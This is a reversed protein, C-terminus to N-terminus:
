KEAYNAGIYNPAVTMAQMHNFAGYQNKDGYTGNRFIDLVKYVTDPIVQGKIYKKGNLTDINYVRQTFTNYESIKPIM